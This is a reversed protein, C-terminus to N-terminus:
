KKKFYIKNDIKDYDNKSIKLENENFKFKKTKNLKSKLTIKKTKDKKHNVFFFYLSNLSSFIPITKDWYITDIKKYSKMFNDANKNLFRKVHHTKLNFNYQVLQSLKNNQKYEKILELLDEKSTIGNTVSIKKKKIHMIKNNKIYIFIANFFVTDSNYFINYMKENNVFSDLWNMDDDEIDEEIDKEIHM